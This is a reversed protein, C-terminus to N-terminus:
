VTQAVPELLAQAEHFRPVCSCYDCLPTGKISLLESCDNCSTCKNRVFNRVDVNSMKTESMNAKHM